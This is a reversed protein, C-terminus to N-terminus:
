GGIRGGDNKTIVVLASRPRATGGDPWTSTYASPTAIASLPTDEGPHQIGVFLTRGDPTEALGTVECDRPGVLFRRLRADGQAAGVFTQISTSNGSADTSTITRVGGDGVAGPLSALLMCNTVDTYAGDDTQIWCINTAQSFWLGDPSSFDNDASLGSVNISAADRGARAGFLFIDWNFTLAEPSPELWRIIHGNPNGRQNQGTERPDNYHRPNAADVRAARASAGAAPPVVTRLSESNNTLTMYVTGNVPDVAGWEPRDMKTAGVIDAAIRTNILVDAQDAFAYTTNAATLNNVGFVLEIWNGTGDANFRAVYLKGSNLYKDGVALKDTRSADAPDWLANSVYKYIYEGRSDDGQYWVLPKGAVAKAPWAGEHAFRGMTTRKKPVSAPNFPDIEVNWGFTNAVNRYDDSGDASTGTRMTNWRGYFQDATDPTTTAWLHNGNGGVGYRAFSALEKASRNPNDTATVRRFYGAWNEECTLYTGWPTYGNACNNVTGRTRTGNTSFRTVMFSGAAPGSMEMETGAHVRRNLTSAQNISWVGSADRAVEAIGVGHGYIERLVEGPVTRAGGVVTQGNAHLFTINLYEHNVALLGRTSSNPDWGNSSSLGFYSMGDHNDGARKDYTSADDTGDNRYAPVSAALPDGVRYLVRATFGQPVVVADASTKAVAAFNLATPRVPVAPPQPITGTGPTAVGDSSGGCGTLASAAGIFSLSAFGLGSKLLGRRKLDASRQNILDNFHPNSSHNTEIDDDHM